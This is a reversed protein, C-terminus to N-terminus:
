GARPPVTSDRSSIDVLEMVVPDVKVCETEQVIEILASLYGRDWDDKCGHKAYDEIKSRVHNEITDIAM